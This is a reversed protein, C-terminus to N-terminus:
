LNNKYFKKKIKEYVSKMQLAIAQWDYNQKVYAQCDAASPMKRQGSLAELMGKALHKTESSELILDSNLPRLIEPIGGIPTGL